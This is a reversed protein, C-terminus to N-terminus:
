TDSLTSDTRQIKIFTYPCIDMILAYLIIKTGNIAMYNSINGKQFLYNINRTPGFVAEELRNLKLHNTYSFM